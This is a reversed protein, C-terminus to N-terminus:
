CLIPALLGGAIRHGPFCRVQGHSTIPRRCLVPKADIPRVFGTARRVASRRQCAYPLREEVEEQATPATSSGAQSALVLSAGSSAILLTALMLWRALSQSISRVESGM